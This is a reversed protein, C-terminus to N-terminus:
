PTLIGRDVPITAGTVSWAEGFLARAIAEGIRAAAGIVLAVRGKLDLSM